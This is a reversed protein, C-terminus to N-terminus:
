ASSRSRARSCSAPRAPRRSGGRCRAAGGRASGRARDRRASGGARSPAAPAGSDLGLEALGAPEVLGPDDRGVRRFDGIDADEFLRGLPQRDAGVDGLAHDEVAIEELDHLVLRAVHGAPSRDQDAPDAPFRALRRPELRFLEVKRQDSSADAHHEEDRQPAPDELEAPEEGSPRRAARKARPDGVSSISGDVSSSTPGIRHCGVDVRGARDPRNPRSNVRGVRDM